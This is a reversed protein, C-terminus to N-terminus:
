NVLRSYSSVLPDPGLDTFPKPTERSYDDCRHEYWRDRRSFCGVSRYTLTPLIIRPATPLTMYHPEGSGADTVGEDDFLKPAEPDLDDADAAAEIEITRGGLDDRGYHDLGAAHFKQRPVFADGGRTSALPLFHPQGLLNVSSSGPFITASLFSTRLMRCIAGFKSDQCETRASYIM